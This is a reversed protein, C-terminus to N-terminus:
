KILNVAELSQREDIDTLEDPNLPIVVWNVPIEGEVTKKYGKIMEAIYREGFLKIGKNAHKQIFIVNVAAKMYAYTNTNNNIKSEKMM